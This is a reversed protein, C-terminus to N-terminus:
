TVPRAGTMSLYLDEYENVMKEATFRSRARRYARLAYQKRLQADASLAAIASALDDPDNRKFYLAADGWLEHFVPIDNAILACQSLAAELPSLGFPEYRSTAVRLAVTPIGYTRGFLLAMEEQAKKSLAYLSTCHLPKEEDTPVSSLEDGCEPCSPEWIKRKLKEPDRVQPAVRGCASCLYRGEGYISMSSAVILKEPQSRTDLIAQLLNATGQINTATYAAIEYMSQGVGVAAALHYIADAGKVAKTLSALDRVDGDVFEVDPSLYVPFGAAHVQKSLNDFVQVSHGASLLADATHSGVFGGGGIILVKKM